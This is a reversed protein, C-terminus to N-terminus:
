MGAVIAKLWAEVVAQNRPYLEDRGMGEEVIVMQYSQDYIPVDLAPNIIFNRTPIFENNEETFGTMNSKYGSLIRPKFNIEAKFLVKAKIGGFLAHFTETKKPKLVDSKPFFRKGRLVPVDIERETCYDRILAFFPDLPIIDDESHHYLGNRSKILMHGNVFEIDSNNTLKDYLYEGLWSMVRGYQSVFKKEPAGSRGFVTYPKPNVMRVLFLDNDTHQEVISLWHLDTTKDRTVVSFLKRNPYDFEEVTGHILDCDAPGVKILMGTELPCNLLWNTTQEKNPLIIM